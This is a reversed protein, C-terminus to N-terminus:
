HFVIELTDFTKDILSDSRDCRSLNLLDCQVSHSPIGSSGDAAWLKRRRYMVIQILSQSEAIYKELCDTGMNRQRAIAVPAVLDQGDTGGACCCISRATFRAFHIESRACSTFGGGLCVLLIMLM